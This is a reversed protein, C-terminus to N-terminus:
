KQCRATTLYHTLALSAASFFSMSAAEPEWLKRKEPILSALEPLAEAVQEAIEHKTKAGFPEFAARIQERSYLYVRIDQTAAISAISLILDAVRPRAAVVDAPIEELILVAPTYYNILTIFKRTCVKNKDDNAAWKIGWDLLTDADSHVSYGFGIRTPYVALM